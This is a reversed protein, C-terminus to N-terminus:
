GEYPRFLICTMQQEKEAFSIVTRPKSMEGLPIQSPLLIGGGTGLAQSLMWTMSAQGHKGTQISPDERLIKVQADKRLKLEPLTPASYGPTYWAM